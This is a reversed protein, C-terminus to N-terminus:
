PGAPRMIRLSPTGKAGAVLPFFVKHTSPDVAVSHSHDGPHERDISVLGPQELDFVTLDGSEAAVYLWGLGPDISMVDPDSGCPASALEISGDLAARVVKANEECAVLATKGDPHLRLGHAGSCGPLAVRATIAATRPDVAILQEPPAPTVVSIWFVARSPDFVINGTQVGLAVQTREGNGAARILSVAGDGQDSVGVVQHVPDWAVGDPSRGTEVRAVESLSSSDIIVLRNPSSTVFIRGVDDAVAVGRPTPIGALVKAVSGDATNVVVVSADNMHAIILHGRAADLDQYDFRVARGPLAVDAVLVLPLSLASTPTDGPATVSPPSENLPAVNRTGSEAGHCAGFLTVVLCLRLLTMSSGSESAGM